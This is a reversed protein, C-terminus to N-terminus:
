SGEEERPLITTIWSEDPNGTWSYLITDKYEVNIQLIAQRILTGPYKEQLTSCCDSFWTKIGDLEDSADGVDRLDGCVILDGWYVSGEMLEDTAEWDHKEMSAVRWAHVHLLAPGESGKPINESFTSVVSLKGFTDSKGFMSLSLHDIRVLGAIHTWRSM